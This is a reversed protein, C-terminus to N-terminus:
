PELKGERSYYKTFIHEQTAKPLTRIREMAKKRGKSLEKSTKRFPCGKCQKETLAICNTRNDFACNKM